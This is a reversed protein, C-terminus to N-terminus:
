WILVDESLGGVFADCKISLNEGGKGGLTGMSLKKPPIKRFFKDENRFVSFFSVTSLSVSM